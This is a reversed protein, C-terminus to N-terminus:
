KCRRRVRRVERRITPVSGDVGRQNKWLPSPSRCSVASRMERRPVGEHGASRPRSDRTRGASPGTTGPNESASPTWIMTSSSSAYTRLSQRVDPTDGRLRPSHSWDARPTKSEVPTMADGQRASVGAPRTEPTLLGVPWAFVGVAILRSFTLPIVRRLRRRCRGYM